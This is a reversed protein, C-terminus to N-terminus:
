VAESAQAATFTKKEVDFFGEEFAGIQHMTGSVVVVEGGESDNDDVQVACLFKRAPYGQEKKEGYLDVRIYEVQADEGTLRNRGINYLAMVAKEDSVLDTEFPFEPEYSKIDTSTSSQHIYVKSETQANPSEGVSTFGYGMLCFEETDKAKVYHGIGDSKVIKM